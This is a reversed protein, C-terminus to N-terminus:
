CSNMYIVRIFVLLDSNHITFGSNYLNSLNVIPLVSTQHISLNPWFIIIIIYIIKANLMCLMAQNAGVSEEAVCCRM